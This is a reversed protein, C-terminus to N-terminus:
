VSQTSTRWTSQLEVGNFSAAKGLLVLVGSRCCTRRWVHDSSDLHGVQWIVSSWKRFASHFVRVGEVFMACCSFSAQEVDTCQLTINSASISLLSHNMWWFGRARRDDCKNLRDWVIRAPRKLMKTPGMHVNSGWCLSSLTCIVGAWLLVRNRQRRRERRPSFFGEDSSGLLVLMWSCVSVMPQCFVTHTLFWFCCVRARCQSHFVFQWVFEASVRRSWVLELACYITRQWFRRQRQSIFCGEFWPINWWRLSFSCRCASEASLTSWVGHEGKLFWAFDIPFHLSVWVFELFACSFVGVEICCRAGLRRCPLVEQSRHRRSDLGETDVNVSVRLAHVSIGEDACCVNRLCWLVSAGIEVQSIWMRLISVRQIPPHVILPVSM